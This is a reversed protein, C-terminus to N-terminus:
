AFTYHIIKNIVMLITYHLKKFFQQYNLFSYNDCVWYMCWEMRGEIWVRFLQNLFSSWVKTNLKKNSPIVHLGEIYNNTM